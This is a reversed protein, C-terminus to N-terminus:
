VGRAAGRGGRGVREREEEVQVVGVDIQLVAELIGRRQVERDLQVVRRRLLPHNPHQEIRPSIRPSDANASKSKQAERQIQMCFLSRVLERQGEESGENHKYRRDGGGSEKRVSGGEGKASIPYAIGPRRVRVGVADFVLM